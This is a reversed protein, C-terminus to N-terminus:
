RIVAASTRRRRRHVRRAVKPTRSAMLWWETASLLILVALVGADGITGYVTPAPTSSVALQAASERNQELAGLLRGRSDLSCSIGSNAARLMPLGSAIATLRARRLHTLSQNTERFNETNVMAILFDAGERAYERALNPYTDELCILVAFREGDDARM